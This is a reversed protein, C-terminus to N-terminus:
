HAQERVSQQDVAERYSINHKVEEWKKDGKLIIEDIKTMKEDYKQRRKMVKIISEISQQGQLAKM